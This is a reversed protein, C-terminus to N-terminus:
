MLHLIKKDEDYYPKTDLYSGTFTVSIEKKSNCKKYSVHYKYVPVVDSSCSTLLFVFLLSIIFQAKKM